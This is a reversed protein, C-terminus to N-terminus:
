DEIIPHREKLGEPDQHIFVQANHFLALLNNEIKDSIKHSESLTLDGDLEIHVQIFYGTGSSRTRLDHYGRVEKHSLLSSIIKERSADDLERDLLIDVAKAGIAWSTYLIYLAILGGVISDIWGLTPMYYALVLSGLVGVNLFLDARYHMSDATIAISHTRNVVYTQFIVLGTTLLISILMVIMGVGPETIPPRHLIHEFVEYLVYLVSVVIISAQGLASLAEIKGHGFRHEKDAPQMAHRVAFLNATSAVMDLFSDALSSLVGVSGTLKWAVIKSMILILAVFVSAYTAM